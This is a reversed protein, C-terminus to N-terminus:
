AKSVNGATPGAPLNAFYDNVKGTDEDNPQLSYVYINLQFVRELEDLMGLTVGQFKDKTKDTKTLFKQFQIKTAAELDKSSGGYHTAVCRFFCLNDQYPGNSGRHLPDVAKSNVLYSPLSCPATGIPHGKLKAVYFTVNPVAEVTWKSDPRQQRACELIDITTVKDLFDRVGDENEVLVPEKLFCHNNNNCAYYYRLEGTENNRVIFGFSVSLKFTANQDRFVAWAKSSLEDITTTHLRFNYEDQIKRGRKFQTRIFQWKERYLQILAANGRGEEEEVPTVLDDRIELPDEQLLDSSESASTAERRVQKSPKEAEDGDERKKIRGHSQPTSSSTPSGTSASLTESHVKHVRQHEILKDRRAFMKCCINCVHQFSNLPDHQKEHRKLSDRRTFTDGCVGCRYAPSKSHVSQKHRNLSRKQQFVKDCQDCRFAM